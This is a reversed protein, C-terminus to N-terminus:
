KQFVVNTIVTGVATVTAPDINEYNDDTTHWTPNFGNGRMDIVNVAPIGARLLPLHDDTIAGGVSNKFFSSYGSTAATKWILDNVYPVASESIYERYFTADKGGVMDLLIAFRPKRGDPYYKEINSAWLASGLCWTDDNGYDGSDEQDVFLIDLGKEKPLFDAAQRAIELIVGVGSAGDNAGDIPTNHKSPDLDEDAWPRTDYHALLLIRQQVETNYRAFINQVPINRRTVPHVTNEHTAIVTDATNELVSVLWEVCRAHSLTQPVRPGFDVQKRIYAMASDGNFTPIEPVSDIHALAVITTDPKPNKGSSCSLLSWTTLLTLFSSIFLRM